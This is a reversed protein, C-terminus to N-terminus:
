QVVTVSNHSGLQQVNSVDLGGTQTVDAFNWGDAVDVGQTITNINGAGIMYQFAENYDGIQTITANVGGDAYGWVTGGIVQTADNHNGTQSISFLSNGVPPTLTTQSASNWNGEQTITATTGITYLYQTGQNGEGNQSITAFSTNGIQTITATNGGLGDQLITAHAYDNVNQSINAVNGGAGLQDVDAESWNANGGYAGRTLSVTASNGSGAQDITARTASSYWTYDTKVQTLTVTNLNGGQNVTAEHYDGTQAINVTNAALTLGTLMLVVTVAAVFSSRM